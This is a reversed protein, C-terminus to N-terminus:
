GSYRDWQGLAKRCAKALYLADTGLAFLRAGQEKWYALPEEQLALIGFHVSNSRCASLTQRGIERIRPHHMEGPIGLVQSLDGPGIFILDVGPVRAIDDICEVAELTEIQIMVLIQRNAAAAYDLMNTGYGSARGPGLGRIGAPPYRCLAVAQEVEGASRIRPFLIGEAGGDLAWQVNAASTESLRVLPAARGRDVARLMELIADPGINSHEADILLFDFGAQSMLEAADPSRLGLFAGAVAQGAELKDRLSM